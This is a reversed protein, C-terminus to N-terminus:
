IGTCANLPVGGPTPNTEYGDFKFAWGTPNDNTVQKPTLAIYWNSYSLGTGVATMDENVKAWTCDRSSGLLDIVKSVRDGPNADIHPWGMSVTKAWLSQYGSFQQQDARISMELQTFEPTIANASRASRVANGDIHNLEALVRNVYPVTITAPVAWPDSTMPPAKPVKATGGGKATASSCAATVAVVFAVVLGRVGVGPRRRLNSM